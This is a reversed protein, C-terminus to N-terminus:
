GGEKPPRGQQRLVMPRGLTEQLRHLFAEGGM